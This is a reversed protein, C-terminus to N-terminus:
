SATNTVAFEVFWADSKPARPDEGFAPDIAHVRDVSIRPAHNARGRWVLIGIMTVLLLSAVGGAVLSAVRWIRAGRPGDSNAQLM